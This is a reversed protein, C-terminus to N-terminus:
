ASAFAVLLGVPALLADVSWIPESEKVLERLRSRLEIRTWVAARGLDFAFQAALAALYIPWDSWNPTTAGALALVLAPGIAYWADAVLLLARTPHVRGRLYDPVRSLILGLPVFLPAVPTPLLFLMPVFIIQTPDTWYSGTHFRARAAIAYAGVLGFAVPWDLHRSWPILAAMASAAVVFAVAIPLEVTRERKSLTGPRRTSAEVLMREVAPDADPDTTRLAAVERVNKM